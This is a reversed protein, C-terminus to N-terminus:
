DAREGEVQVAPLAAHIGAITRWTPNTSRGTAVGYVTQYPLGARVALAELERRPMGELRAVLDTLEIMGAM